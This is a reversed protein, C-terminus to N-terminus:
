RAPGGGAAITNSTAREARDHAPVFVVQYRSPDLDALRFVFTRRAVALHATPTPSNADLLLATGPLGPRVTGSVVWGGSRVRRAAIRVASRATVTSAQSSIGGSTATFTSTESARVRVSWSGDAATIAHATGTAHWSTRRIAIPVGARAPLVRGRLTIIGPALVTTPVTIQVATTRVPADTTGGGTTTGDGAGSGGSGTGTGAGTGGPPACSGVVYDAGRTADAPETGGPAHDVWHPTGTSDTGDYTVVFPAALVSGAAIGFAAPTDITVTGDTGTTTSGTTAGQTTFPITAGPVYSGYDYAVATGTSAPSGVARVYRSQGGSTFVLAYGAVNVDSDDHEPVWLGSRTQIVAQLPGNAESLWASVVDTGPHHGDSRLDTIQVVGQCAAPAAASAASSSIGMAVMAAVLVAVAPGALRREM